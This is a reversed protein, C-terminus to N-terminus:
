WKNRDISGSSCKSSVAVISVDYMKMAMCVLPIMSVNYIVNIGSVWVFWALGYWIVFWGIYHVFVIGSSCHHYVRNSNCVMAVGYGYWVMYYRNLAVVM